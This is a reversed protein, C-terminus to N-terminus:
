RLDLEKYMILICLTRRLNRHRHYSRTWNRDNVFYQNVDIYSVVHDPVADDLVVVFSCWRDLVSHLHCECRNSRQKVLKDRDAVVRFVAHM